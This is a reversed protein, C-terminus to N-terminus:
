KFLLYARTNNAGPSPTINQCSDFPIVLSPLVFRLLCPLSFCPSWLSSFPPSLYFFLLSLLHVHHHLHPAVFPYFSLLICTNQCCAGCSLSHPPIFYHIRVRPAPFPPASALALSYTPSSIFFAIALPSFHDQSLPCHHLSLLPCFSFLCAQERRECTGSTRFTIACLSQEASM